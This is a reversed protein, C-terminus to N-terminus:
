RWRRRQPPEPPREYTLADRHLAVWEAVVPLLVASPTPMEYCDWCANVSWVIRGNRRTVPFTPGRGGFFTPFKCTTHDHGTDGILGLSIEYNDVIGLAKEATVLDALVELAPRPEERERPSWEGPDVFPAGKAWTRGPETHDPVHWRVRGITIVAFGLDVKGTGGCVDCDDDGYHGHRYYNCNGEVKTREVVASGDAIAARIARYKLTYIVNRPVLVGTRADRNLRALTEILSEIM